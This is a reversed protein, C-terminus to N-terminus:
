GSFEGYDANVSVFYKLTAARSCVCSAGSVGGRVVKRQRVVTPQDQRRAGSDVNNYTLRPSAAVPFIAWAWRTRARARPIFLTQHSNKLRSKTRLPPTLPIM